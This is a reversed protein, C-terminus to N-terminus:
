SSTTASSVSATTSHSSSILTTSTRTSTSISSSVAKVTLATTSSIESTTAKTAASTASTKTSAKTVTSATAKTAAVSSTSISLTSASSTTLCSDSTGEEITFEGSYAITGTADKLSLTVTTGAAIDVTWTYSGEATQTPFTKLVTGSVEGGPLATIYYPATGGSFTLATPQCEVVSSPTNITLGLVAEVILLLAVSLTFRFGLM